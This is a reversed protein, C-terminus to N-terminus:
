QPIKTDCLTYREEGVLSVPIDFSRLQAMFADVYRRGRGGQMFTVTFDEGITMVEILLMGPNNKEGIYVHIDEVHRDLGCWDMKGVYSIGFTKGLISNEIYKRMAREKEELSVNEGEPFAALLRNVANLDASKESGLLIQGRVVTNQSTVNWEKIKPSLTVPLYSVMSHRSVPKNLAARYQHQVHAVISRDINRDLLCMARYLMVALYSIPSGDSPNAKQMMVKQPIHLHYAYLGDTDFANSDLTYANRPASKPLYDDDTEFPGDSFPYEYEEKLVPDNPFSIKQPNLGETGYLESVYLYLVTKLLPDIGMGDAIYHSANLFIQRGQCGFALLHGNAEETGLTVCRGDAFVPVPYPNHQLLIDNGKKVPYISFYPYRVMAKTVSRSLVEHNVESHMTIALKFTGSFSESTGYLLPNPKYNM